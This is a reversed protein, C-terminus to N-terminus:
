PIVESILTEISGIMRMQDPPLVSLSFGELSFQRNEPSSGDSHHLLGDSQMENNSTDVTSDTYNNVTDFLDNPLTLLRIFCGYKWSTKIAM